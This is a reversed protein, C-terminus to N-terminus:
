IAGQQNERKTWGRWDNISRDWRAFMLGSESMRQKAVIAEVLNKQHEPCEKKALKAYYEPRYLLVVSDADAEIQGSDRLDSLTPRRGDRSETQRNLQAVAIVACDTEKSLLKLQRSVNSVREERSLNGRSEIQQLYDVVILSIDHRQKVFKSVSRISDINITRDSLYLPLDKYKDITTGIRYDIDYTNGWNGYLKKFIQANPMELSFLLCGHDNKLAQQIMYLALSTKGMGPRGAVIHLGGRYILWNEDIFPEIKIKSTGTDDILESFWENSATKLDQYPRSIEDNTLEMLEKQAVELYDDQSQSINKINEMWINFKNLKSAKLLEKRYTSCLSQIAAVETLATIQDTGPWWKEDKCKLYLTQESLGDSSAFIEIMAMYLDRYDTHVDDTQVKHKILNDPRLLISGLYRKTLDRM